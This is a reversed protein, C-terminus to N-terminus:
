WFGQRIKTIYFPGIAFEIAQLEQALLCGYHIDSVTFKFTNKEKMKAERQLLRTTETLVVSM